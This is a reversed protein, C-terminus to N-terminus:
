CAVEHVGTSSPLDFVLSALVLLSDSREMACRHHQQRVDLDVVRQLCDLNWRDVRGPKAREELIFEGVGREMANEIEFQLM